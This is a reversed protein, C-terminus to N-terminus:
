RIAASGGDENAKESAPYIILRDGPHIHEGRTLDNWLFLTPLPVGFREAILSLNDGKKVM